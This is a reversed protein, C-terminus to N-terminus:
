PKKALAAKLRRAVDVIGSADLDHDVNDHFHEWAAIDPTLILLGEFIAYRKDATIGKYLMKNYADKYKAYLDGPVNDGLNVFIEARQNQSMQKSVVAAYAEYFDDYYKTDMSALSEVLLSRYKKDLLVKDLFKKYTESLKQYKETSIKMLQSALAVRNFPSMSKSVIVLYTNKFLISDFRPNAQFGFSIVQLMTAKFDGDMDQTLETYLSILATLNNINTDILARLIKIHSEASMDDAKLSNYAELIKKANPSKTMAQTLQQWTQKQGTTIKPPISQLTSEPPANEAEGGSLARPVIRLVVESPEKKFSQSLMSGGISGNSDSLQNGSQSDPTSPSRSSQVIDRLISARKGPPPTERTPDPMSFSSSPRTNDPLDEAPGVEGNVHIKKILSQKEKKAYSLPVLFFLASILFLFRM